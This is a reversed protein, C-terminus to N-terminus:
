YVRMRLPKIRFGDHYSEVLGCFRRRENDYVRFIKNDELAEPLFRDLGNTLRLINEDDLSVASIDTLAADIPLILEEITGNYMFEEVKDITLALKPHM